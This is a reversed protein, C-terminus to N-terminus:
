FVNNRGIPRVLVDNKISSLHAVSTSVKGTDKSVYKSNTFILTGGVFSLILLMVALIILAKGKTKKM